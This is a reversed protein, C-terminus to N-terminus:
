KTVEWNWNTVFGYAPLTTSITQHSLCWARATSYTWSGVILSPWSPRPEPEAAGVLTKM